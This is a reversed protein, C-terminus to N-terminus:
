RAKTEAMVELMTQFVARQRRGLRKGAIAKEVTLKIQPTNMGWGRVWDPRGVWHTRGIVDGYLPNMPHAKRIANGGQEVWGSHEAMIRLLQCDYPTLTPIDRGRKAARARRFSISPVLRLGRAIM